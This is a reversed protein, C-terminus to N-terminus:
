KDITKKDISISFFSGLFFFIFNEMSIFRLVSIKSYNVSDVAKTMKAKQKLSEGISKRRDRNDNKETEDDNEELTKENDNEEIGITLRRRKQKPEKDKKEKEKM